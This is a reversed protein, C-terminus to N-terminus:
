PDPGRRGEEPKGRPKGLDVSTEGARVLHRVPWGAVCLHRVRARGVDDLILPTGGRHHEGNHSAFLGAPFVLPVSNREEEVVGRLAVRGHNLPFIFQPVRTRGCRAQVRACGHANADRQARARM